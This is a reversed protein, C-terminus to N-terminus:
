VIVIGAVVAQGKRNMVMKKM